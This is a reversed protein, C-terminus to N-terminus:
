NRKIKMVSTKLSYTYKWLRYWEIGEYLWRTSNYTGGVFYVGNLSLPFCDHAHWWPGRTLWSCNRNLFNEAERDETSFPRGSQSDIFSSVFSNNSEVFGDVHLTFNTAESGVSFNSYTEFHTMVSEGPWAELEVMFSSSMTTLLHINNLGLWYEAECSGFGAAYDAWLREFNESGDMRRQIVTWGGNTMDCWATTPEGGLPQINYVGDATQGGNYADLCDSPHSTLLKGYVGDGIANEVFTAVVSSGSFCVCHPQTTATFLFLEGATIKRCIRLCELSSGANFFTADGINNPVNARMYVASSAAACPCVEVYVIWLLVPFYLLKLGSSTSGKVKAM